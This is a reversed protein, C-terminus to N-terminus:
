EDQINNNEKEDAKNAKIKNIDEDKIVLIKSEEKVQNQRRELLDKYIKDGQEKWSNVFDNDVKGKISDIIRKSLDANRDYLLTSTDEIQCSILLYVSIYPHVEYVVSPLKRLRRYDDEDIDKIFDAVQKKTLYDKFKLLTDSLSMNNLFHYKRDSLLSKLSKVEKSKGKLRRYSVLRKKYYEFYSSELLSKAQKNWDAVIDPTIFKGETFSKYFEEISMKKIIGFESKMCKIDTPKYISFVEEYNFPTMEELHVYSYAKMKIKSVCDKAIYECVNDFYIESKILRDFICSMFKSTPRQKGKYKAKELPQGDYSIRYRIYGNYTWFALLKNVFKNMFIAEDIKNTRAKQAVIALTNLFLVDDDSLQYKEEGKAPEINIGYHVLITHVDEETYKIRNNPILKPVYLTDKSITDFSWPKQDSSRDQILDALNVASSKLFMETMPFLFRLSFENYYWTNSKISKQIREADKNDWKPNKYSAAIDSIIKDLVGKKSLDDKQHSNYVGVFARKLNAM